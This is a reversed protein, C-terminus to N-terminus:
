WHGTNDSPAFSSHPVVSSESPDTTDDRLSTSDRRSSAFELIEVARDMHSLGDLLDCVSDMQSASLQWRVDWLRDLLRAVCSHFTDAIGIQQMARLVVVLDACSLDFLHAEVTDCLTRFKEQDAVRSVRCKASFALTSFVSTVEEATRSVVFHHPRIQEALKLADATTSQEEKRLGSSSHIRPSATCLPPLLDDKLPTTWAQLIQQVPNLTKHHLQVNPILPHSTIGCHLLATSVLPGDAVSVNTKLLESVVHITKDVKYWSSHLEPPVDETMQSQPHGLAYILRLKQHTSEQGIRRRSRRATMLMFKPSVVNMCALAFACDTYWTGPLAMPDGERHRLGHMFLWDLLQKSSGSPHQMSLCALGLAYRKMGDATVHDRADFSAAFSKQHVHRHQLVGLAYVIQALQQSSLLSQSSRLVECCDNAVEPDYLGTEAMVTLLMGADVRTLKLTRFRKLMERAEGSKQVKAEMQVKGKVPLLSHMEAGMPRFVFPKSRPHYIADCCSLLQISTDTHLFSTRQRMMHVAKRYLTHVIPMLAVVDASNTSPPASLPTMSSSHTSFSQAITLCSSALSTVTNVDTTAEAAVDALVALKPLASLPAEAHRFLVACARLLKSVDSFEEAASPPRLLDLHSFLLAKSHEALEAPNGERRTVAQARETLMATLTRLSSVSTSSM